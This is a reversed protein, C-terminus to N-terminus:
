IRTYKTPKIYVPNTRQPLFMRNTIATMRMTGPTAEGEGVGETSNGGVVRHDRGHLTMMHLDEVTAAAKASGEEPITAKIAAVKTDEEQITAKIDEAVDAKVAALNTGEQSIAEVVEEEEPGEEGVVAMRM